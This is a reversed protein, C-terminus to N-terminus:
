FMFMRKPNSKM